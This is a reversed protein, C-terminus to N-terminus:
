SQLQSLLDKAVAIIRESDEIDRAYKEQRHKITNPTLERATIAAGVYQLNKPKSLFQLIADKSIYTKPVTEFGITIEQEFDADVAYPNIISKSLDSIVVTKALESSCQLEYTTM